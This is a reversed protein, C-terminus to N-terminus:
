AKQKGCNGRKIQLVALIVASPTVLGGYGRQELM